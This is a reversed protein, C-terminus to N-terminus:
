ATLRIFGATSSSVDKVEIRAKVLSAWRYTMPELRGELGTSRTDASDWTLGETIEM